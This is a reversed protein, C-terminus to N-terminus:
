NEEEEEEEEEENVLRSLVENNLEESVSEYVGPIALIQDATMEHLVQELMDYFMDDTIHSYKNINKM